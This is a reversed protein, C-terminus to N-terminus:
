TDPTSPMLASRMRELAHYDPEDNRISEVKAEEVYWLLKLTQIHIGGLRKRIWVEFRDGNERGFEDVWRLITKAMSGRLDDLDYEEGLNSFLPKGDLQYIRRAMERVQDNALAMDRHYDEQKDDPWRAKAVMGRLSDFNKPLGHIDSTAFRTGLTRWFRNASGEFTQAEQLWEKEVFDKPESLPLLKPIRQRLSPLRVKWNRAPTMSVVVGGVGVGILIGGVLDPIVIGAGVFVLGLFFQIWSVKDM